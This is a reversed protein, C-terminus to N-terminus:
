KWPNSAKISVVEIYLLVLASLVASLPERSLSSDAVDGCFFTLNYRQLTFKPFAVFDDRYKRICHGTISM